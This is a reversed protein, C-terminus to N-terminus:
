KRGAEQEKAARELAQLYIEVIPQTTQLEMNHDTSLAAFLEGDDSDALEYPDVHAQLCTCAKRLDYFAAAFIKLITHTVCAYITGYLFLFTPKIPRM